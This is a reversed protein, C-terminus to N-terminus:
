KLYKPLEDYKPHTLGNSKFTKTYKSDFVM